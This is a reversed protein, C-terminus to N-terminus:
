RSTGEKLKRESSDKTFNRKLRQIAINIEIQEDIVMQIEPDSESGM